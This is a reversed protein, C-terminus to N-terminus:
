WWQQKKLLNPDDNTSAISSEGLMHHILWHIRYVGNGEDLRCIETLRNKPPEQETM